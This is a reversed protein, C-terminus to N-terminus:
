VPAIGSEIVLGSHCSVALGAMNVISRGIVGGPLTRLTVVCGIPAISGEVVLRSGRSVTLATMGVVLRVVM